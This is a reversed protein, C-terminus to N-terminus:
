RSARRPNRDTAGAADRDTGAPRDGPGDDAAPRTTVREEQSQTEARFRHAMPHFIEDAPGMLAGGIGRRRIRLGLWAVAGLVAAFGGVIVVAAAFTNVGASYGGASCHQAM